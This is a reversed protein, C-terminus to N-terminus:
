SKTNKWYQSRYLSKWLNELVKRYESIGDNGDSEPNALTRNTMPIRTNTYAAAEERSIKEILMSIMRIRIPRTSNFFLSILMNNAMNAVQDQLSIEDVVEQSSAVDVPFLLLLGALVCFLGRKSVGM